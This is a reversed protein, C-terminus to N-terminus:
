NKNEACNQLYLFSCSCIIYLVYIYFWICTQVSSLRHREGKMRSQPFKICFRGYGIPAGVFNRNTKAFCNWLLLNKSPGCFINNESQDIELFRSSQCLKALHYSVQYSSDISPERYLNSMENQDMLLCWFCADGTAAMNTLLDLRFSCDEYLVNWLHNRGLKLENRQPIQSAYKDTIWNLSLQMKFSCPRWLHRKNRFPWIIRFKSPLM